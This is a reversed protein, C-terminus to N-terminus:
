EGLEDLKVRMEEAKENNELVYYINMMTRIVEVNNSDIQAAKELYPLAKQYLGKRKEQLADYESHNGDELKQNMEEIIGKEESLITAALNVYANIMDPSFEIAKKYFDIASDTDGLEASTVALNYYLEANEPDQKVVDRLIQNYRDIQGMEYYVNAEAQMLSIDNPNEEKAKKLAKLAMEPKNQQVYIQVLVKAINGRKSETVQMEPKIYEGSKVYIDRERESSFVRTEGTSKDTAIYQVESGDYGMELLQSFYNGATEYDKGTVAANAAYYLFITDQKALQYRQYLKEAAATYNGAEQDAVASNRMAVKVMSLGAQGMEMEGLEILKNASEAAIKLDEMSANEGQNPGLYALGKAIYFDIKTKDKEESIQSEVSSLLTKAESYNGEELASQANRIEKKQSFATMSILAILVTLIKTKM